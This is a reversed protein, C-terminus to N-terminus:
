GNQKKGGFVTIRDRGSNKSLYLAKDAALILDSSDHTPDPNITAVGFSLSVISKILSASHRINLNEVAGGIHDAIVLAGNSETDPLLLVFEEGGYRAAIDSPRKVEMKIAKAVMKLCDDGAQHGYTDNFKKFYDIDCMILSLPLNNRSHRKWEKALVSDFYRRNFLSTLGDVNSLRELKTNAKELDATREKVKEELTKKIDEQKKLEKEFSRTRYRLYGLGCAAVVLLYLIFYWKYAEWFSVKRFRIISDAPLHSEKIGWRELERWDFMYRFSGKVVPVEGPSDGNLIRLGMEAIKDGAVEASSLNGGVIGSGLFTDWLGYVPCNSAERIQTVVNKPILRRGDGDQTMLMFFLITYKPVRRLKELLEDMPLGSLYIFNFDNGYNKFVKRAKNEYFIDYESAGSVVFINKTKPHLKLALKLTDEIEVTEFVGTMNSQLRIQQFKEKEAVFLIPINSFQNEGYLIMFDIVPDASAVILDIAIKEYKYKLIGHLLRMYDLTYNAEIGTFETFIEIEMGPVSALKKHIAEDFISQWPMGPDTSNLILVRKIKGHSLADIDDAADAQVAALVAAIILFKLILFKLLEM